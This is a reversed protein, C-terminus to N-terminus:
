AKPDGNEDCRSALQRVFGRVAIYIHEAEDATYKNEVHMTTNRWAVRVADLSAYAGEFFQRDTPNNWNKTPSQGGHADLDNKIAKLINGWNRDAPRVPDPIGLCRSVARIGIEMVRMLHFVSATPRSLGYCKGAEDIEFAASPYKLEVDNGFLPQTPFIYAADQISLAIFKHLSCEDQMRQSLDDLLPVLMKVDKDVDCIIREVVIKCMRLDLREFLAADNEFSKKNNEQVDAALPGIERTEYVERLRGVEKATEILQPLSFELMDRLSWLRRTERLSRAEQQAGAALEIMAQEWPAVFGIGGLYPFV